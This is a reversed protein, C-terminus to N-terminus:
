QVSQRSVDFQPSPPTPSPHELHFSRSADEVRGMRVIHTMGNSDSIRSPQPQVSLVKTNNPDSDTEAMWAVSEFGIVDVEHRFATSWGDAATTTSGLVAIHEMGATTPTVGGCVSWEVRTRSAINSITFGEM